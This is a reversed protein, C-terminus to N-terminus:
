NRPPSTRTKSRRWPPPSPRAWITRPSTPPLAWPSATPATSWCIPSAAPCCTRSRKRITSTSTSAWPTRTSTRCAAGPCARDHAGRHLADGGPQRRRHLRLQRPRGGAARADCLAAGHAGARRLGSIDGHPHFKGLCDGVIRACKRHPKDFTNGLEHMTYLIRRQVPKLGDEVRPLARELIVYESYPMMSDHMVEEMSKQVIQEAFSSRITRKGERWAKSGKGFPNLITWTTSIPTNASHVRTRPEVKDGMLVTVRREAEALDEITVQVMKRGNPNM